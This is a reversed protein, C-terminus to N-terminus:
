PATVADLLRLKETIARHKPPDSDVGSVATNEAGRRYQERLGDIAIVNFEIGAIRMRGHDDPIGHNWHEVAGFEIKLGDQRAQLVHWSRIECHIGRGTLARQLRPFDSEPCSFDVDRVVMAPDRTYAFVALSGDMVPDVGAETCAEHVERAFAMLRMFHEHNAPTTEIEIMWAGIVLEGV